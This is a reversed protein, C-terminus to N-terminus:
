GGGGVEVAAQHVHDEGAAGSWAVGEGGEAGVGLYGLGAEERGVIERRVDGSPHAGEYGGGEFLGLTFLDGVDRRLAFHRLCFLGASVWARHGAGGERTM